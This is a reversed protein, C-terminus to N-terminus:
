NYILPPSSGTAAGLGPGPRRLGYWALLTKARGHRKRLRLEVERRFTEARQCDETRAHRGGFLIAGTRAMFVPDTKLGLHAEVIELV